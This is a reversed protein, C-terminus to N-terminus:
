AGSRLVEGLRRRVIPVHEPDLCWTNVSFVGDVLRTEISPKGERFRRQVDEPTLKVRADWRILMAPLRDFVRETEVGPISQIEEDLEDLWAGKERKETELDHSLTVEVAVMMGLLEEKSVKMGRGITDDHPAGNRRAAAILDQRGLLLGASYPGKLGKGGSFCNLDFGLNSLKKLNEAPPVRTATDIFSPVGHRKGLKAFTEADIKGFSERVRVFYLMATKENIAREVDDVTEVEILRVGCNRVAHNYSYHHGRQIILESKMGTVDPLRRIREEDLGTLCAATGLTIASAAGASVMAAECGVLSAIRTGVADHLDKMRARHSMAFNMAEIVEPWMQNGGLRSYPALVNIFSEVSLEEFYDRGPAVPTTKSSPSALAAPALAGLPAVGCLGKLFARRSTM